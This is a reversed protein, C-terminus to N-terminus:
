LKAGKRKIYDTRENEARNIERKPTKQSKKRFHHLLIYTDDQYFFYFVRNNGPRLEWINDTIQKTINEPLMTGNQELLEIYYSLQNFQIRADKSTQLKAKLSNLFERIDCHGTSTEYFEIKYM